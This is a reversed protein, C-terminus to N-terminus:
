EIPQGRRPLGEVTLTRSSKPSSPPEAKFGSNETIAKTIKEPTTKAPDYTVEALGNEYTVKAEIVGGVKKAAMKVSVACGPCTMGTIKLKCTEAAKTQDDAATVPTLVPVVAVGAAVLARVVATRAFFRKLNV